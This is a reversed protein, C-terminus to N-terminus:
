EKVKKKREKSNEKLWVFYLVIKTRFNTNMRITILM